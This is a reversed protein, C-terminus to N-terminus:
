SRCNHMTKGLKEIWLLVGDSCGICNDTGAKSCTAFKNATANSEYIPKPFQLVLKETNNVAYVVVLNYFHIKRVGHFMLIDLYSGGAFCCLAMSLKVYCDIPGKPM